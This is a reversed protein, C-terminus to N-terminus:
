PMSLSKQIKPSLAGVWGIIKNGKIIKATQGMQLAPHEAAEFTYENKSHFLLAQVDSKADFFDVEREGEAWQSDHRNGCIIGAIKQVQDEVLTGTFCQGLEFFRANHHGRRINSKASQILGSWLSSRMVAMDDSIPNKLLIKTSNPDVLDHMENSIFSYTIVEKYGRNVLSSSFDSSSIMAQSSPSINANISLRQVPIKDYGYLRALEEIIDAPIRIDFRFSPPKITWSNASNTTFEFELFKFKSEIWSPELDFGLVRSIKDNSIEIPELAPLSKSDVCENIESATGGCIELVLETAREIAQRTINFDVGREFRLSAETHLGYSRAIGAISIPDFFASEFLIDTSNELTATKMGGMVGAIAIASKEDAIVLTKETLSVTQGNLLELKENKHASRVEIDGNITKLDFAHMPQGLELLVYNTIDVIPSHLQQSARLLKQAMWKPTQANNDVGEIVRTLYKACERPNAVKSTFPRSGKQEAKYITSPMSLNYNVCVERAVGLVSFCDGRNPTIDLEIIQDDLDLVSRINEGLTATMDLEIIGEHSESLGIESESCLMGNSEVGRLKARKIKLKSPLVSGVTAVVVKLDKRVNPAGCIIQLNSGDGIDIECLSLKDANPHKDCSVVHGVVLGEFPPAVPAI